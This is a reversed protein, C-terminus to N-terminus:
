NIYNITLNDSQILHQVYLILYFYELLSSYKFVDTLYKVYEIYGVLHFDDYSIIFTNKIDSLWMCYMQPYDTFWIELHKIWSQSLKFIQGGRKKGGCAKAVAHRQRRTHEM